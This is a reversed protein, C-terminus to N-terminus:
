TINDASIIMHHSGLDSGGHLQGFRPKSCYTININIHLVGRGEVFVGGRAKWPHKAHVHTHSKYEEM